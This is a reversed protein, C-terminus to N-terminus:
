RTFFTLDLRLILRMTHSLLVLLFTTPIGSSVSFISNDNECDSNPPPYRQNRTYAKSQLLHLCLPVRSQPLQMLTHLPSRNCLLFSPYLFPPSVPSYLVSLLLTPIGQKKSQHEKQLMQYNFYM